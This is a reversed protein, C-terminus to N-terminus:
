AYVTTEEHSVRLRSGAAMDNDSYAMFEVPVQHSEGRKFTEALSGSPKCKPYFDLRDLSDEPADSVVALSIFGQTGGGIGMQNASTGATSSTGATYAAGPICKALNQLDTEALVTKILATQKSIVSEVPGDEQDVEVEYNETEVAESIGEQTYGIEIWSTGSGTTADLDDIAGDTVPASTTQTTNIYFKGYGSVIKTVDGYAM